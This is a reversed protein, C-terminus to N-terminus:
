KIYPETFKLPYNIILLHDKYQEISYDQLEKEMLEAAENSLRKLKEPSPMVLPKIPIRFQFGNYPEIILSDLQEITNNVNNEWAIGVFQRIMGRKEFSPQIYNVITLTGSQGSETLIKRYHTVQDNLSDSSHSGEYLSGYIITGQTSVLEPEIQSFGGLSYNIVVGALVIIGGLLLFKRM